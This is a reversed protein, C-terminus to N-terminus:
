SAEANCKTEGKLFALYQEAAEVVADWGHFVNPSRIAHDLAIIRLQIDEVSGSSEGTVKEIDQM